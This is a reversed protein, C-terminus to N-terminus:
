FNFLEALYEKSYRESFSFLMKRCGLIELRRATWLSMAPAHSDLSNAIPIDTAIQTIGVHLIYSHQLIPTM